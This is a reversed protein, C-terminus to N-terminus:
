KREDVEEGRIFYDFCEYLHNRSNPLHINLTLSYILYCPCTSREFVDRNVKWLYPIGIGLSSHWILCNVEICKDVYQHSLTDSIFDSPLCVPVYTSMDQDRTQVSSSTYHQWRSEYREM